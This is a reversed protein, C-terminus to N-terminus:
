TFHVIKTQRGEERIIATDPFRSNAFVVSICSKSTPRYFAEDYPWGKKIQDLLYHQVIEKRDARDAASLRDITQSIAYGGATHPQYNVPKTNEDLVITKSALAKPSTEKAPPPGESTYNKYVAESLGLKTGKSAEIPPINTTLLVSLDTITKTEVTTSKTDTETTKPSETSNPQINISNTPAPKKTTGVMEVFECCIKQGSGYCTMGRQPCDSDIACSIPEGDENLIGLSNKPCDLEEEQKRDEENFFEEVAQMEEQKKQIDETKSQNDQQLKQCCIPVLSDENCYTSKFAQNHEDLTDKRGRSM